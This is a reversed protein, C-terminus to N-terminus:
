GLRSRMTKDNSYYSVIHKGDPSFCGFRLGGAHGELHTHVIKEPPRMGSACPEPRSRRLRYTQRRPFVNGLDPIAHARGAQSAAEWQGVGLRLSQIRPAGLFGVKSGDPSFRGGSWGIDEEPTFRSVLKGTKANYIRVPSRDGADGAAALFYQGKPSFTM